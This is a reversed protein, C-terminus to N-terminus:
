RAIKKLKIGHYATYNKEHDNTLKKTCVTKELTNQKTLLCVRFRITHEERFIITYDARFRLKHDARFRIENAKFPFKM